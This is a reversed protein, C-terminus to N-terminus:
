EEFDCDSQFSVLMKLTFSQLKLRQSVDGETEACILDILDVIASGDSEKLEVVPVSEGRIAKRVIKSLLKREQM